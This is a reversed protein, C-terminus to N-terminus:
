KGLAHDIGYRLMDANSQFGMKQMLRAKHTSVTKNSIALEDAIQNVSKGCVFLRFISLERNSLQEHAHEHQGGESDFVMQEALGPDIYRGGSAVKRVAMLLTEPDSDKTMYGNAGAKLARRAVLVENHMSLVLIPLDPAHARIRAILEIGSIGPMSLDLLVMDCSTSRLNEIVQGGNTAQAVVMVDGALGFLQLLGGRVIAHDDAILIRIM